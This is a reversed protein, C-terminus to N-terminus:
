SNYTRIFQNLGGVFMETSIMALIMGMLQEMVFVARAGIFRLATPILFLILIVLAWAILLAFTVTSPSAKESFILITSLLGAGALLPTAIPVLFPEAKAGALKVEHNSPYIMQLAVLLLLISGCFSITYDSLSLVEMFQKGFFLFLVTLLFGLFGERVLLFRQRSVDCHKVLSAIMPSNGIPNIVIFFTIALPFLTYPEM